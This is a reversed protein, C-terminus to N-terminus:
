GDSETVVAASSEAWIVEDGSLVGQEDHSCRIMVCRDFGRFPPDPALSARGGDVCGVFERNCPPGVVGDGDRLLRM